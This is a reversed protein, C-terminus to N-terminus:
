ALKYVEHSLLEVLILLAIASGSPEFDFHGCDFM